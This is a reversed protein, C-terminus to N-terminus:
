VPTSTTNVIEGLPPTALLCSVAEGPAAKSKKQIAFSLGRKLELESPRLLGLDLGIGDVWGYGTM